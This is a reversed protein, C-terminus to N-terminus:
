STRKDEIAIGFWNLLNLPLVDTFSYFDSNILKLCFDSSLLFLVFNRGDNISATVSLSYSQFHM